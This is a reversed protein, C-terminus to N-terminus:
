KVGYWALGEDKWGLGLLSDHEGKDTTYNHNNAFENPNYERYLPVREQDDSYWAAGDENYDKSEFTWGLEVLADREGASM